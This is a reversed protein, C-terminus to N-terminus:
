GDLSSWQSSSQRGSGFRRTHRWATDTFVELDVVDDRSTLARVLRLAAAEACAGSLFMLDNSVGSVNLRWGGAVPDLKLQRVM